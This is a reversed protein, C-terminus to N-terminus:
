YISVVAATSVMCRLPAHSRRPRALMSAASATAPWAGKRIVIAAHCLPDAHCSAICESVTGVLNAASRPYINQYPRRAPLPPLSSFVRPPAPGLIRVSGGPLLMAACVCRMIPLSCPLLLSFLSDVATSSLTSDNSRCVLNSRVRCLNLHLCAHEFPMGPLLLQQLQPHHDQCAAPARGDAAAATCGHDAM